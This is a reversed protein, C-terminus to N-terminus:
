HGNPLSELSFQKAVDENESFSCLSGQNTRAISRQRPPQQRRDRSGMERGGAGRQKWEVMKSLFFTRLIKRLSNCRFQRLFTKPSDCVRCNCTEHAVITKHSKRSKRDTRNTNEKKTKTRQLCNEKFTAQHRQLITYIFYIPFESSANLHIVCGLDHAEISGISPHNAGLSQNHCMRVCMRPLCVGWFWIVYM